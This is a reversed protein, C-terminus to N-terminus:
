RGPGDPRLEIRQGESNGTPYPVVLLVQAFDQCGLSGGTGTGVIPFAICEKHMM